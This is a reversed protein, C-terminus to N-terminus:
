RRARKSTVTYYTELDTLTNGQIEIRSNKNHTSFNGGGKWPNLIKASTAKNNPPIPIPLQQLEGLEIDQHPGHLHM